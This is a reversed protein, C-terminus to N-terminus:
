KIFRDVLSDMTLIKKFRNLHQHRLIKANSFFLNYRLELHKSQIFDYQFSLVNVSQLGILFDFHTRWCFMKKSVGLEYANCLKLSLLLSQRYPNRWNLPHILLLQTQLFLAFKLVVWRKVRRSAWLWVRITVYLAIIRRWFHHFREFACTWACPTSFIQAKDDKNRRGGSMRM